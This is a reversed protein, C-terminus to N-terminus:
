CCRAAEVCYSAVSIAVAGVLGWRAGGLLAASLAANTMWLTTPWTQNDAIWDRSAVFETSLMMAGSVVVEVAVFWWHRGFGVLYGAAWVVNAATLVAFLLWTLGPRTLDDNIVIQFGLAYLFTLIRYIQAARWLPAVPDSEDVVWRTAGGGRAGGSGGRSGGSGGRSGTSLGSM